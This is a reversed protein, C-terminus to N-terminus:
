LFEINIRDVNFTVFSGFLYEYNQLLENEIQIGIDIIGGEMLIGKMTHRFLDDHRTVSREQDDSPKIEIDDLFLLSIDALYRKDIEIQYPCISAFVTIEMQGIVVDVEEEVHPDIRKVYVEYQM